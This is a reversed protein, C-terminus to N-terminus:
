KKLRNIYIYSKGTPKNGNFDIMYYYTGDPLQGGNWDNEYNDKEYVLSGWRNFISLKNPKLGMVGPIILVDNKGDGNPSIGQPLFSECVDADIRNDVGDHDCDILSGFDINNEVSDLIGDNDSDTDRFDYTLDKDTDLPNKPDPGAEVKDTIGDNDSDLDRFDANGDKDTDVPTSTPGKEINDSLTDSDSDLDRYDPLGDGDTDIPNATPGKEINDSIGDNDSDLDRYDPLGDGDTDVPTSTPGKETNDSIGDNDSDLDRYDPLGDGDTDIPTGTPGKEINDSIGDNDSDLDRYDPLGDGDTDIPTGNPGKEINDIIGDNDSDIDRYDPLGDKDTDIPKSPDAGAETKDLIGDNDSDTERFDYIGDGDTDLPKTPDVGAEIADTIGDNDSDLDRFDPTGDKDTDVPISPDKGAEIADPIGDNDSDLDRFDPTGDKDTDVPNLPDSGAEVADPIGDNDSDIDLFDPSGDKDTDVSWGNTSFEARDDWGDDNNDVRDTCTVCTTPGEIRDLIGDGDSDLDLFNPAGDGDKDSTGEIRDGLKDGDSDLDRYNPLNDGDMDGRLEIRDLIGDADSDLDLFDAAGDGDTDPVEDSAGGMATEVCDLLGNGNADITCDVRGDNNNDVQNRFKILGEFSDLIGDGDSDLDLFNPTGDKDFDAATERSDLIGDNDSDIDIYDFHGDGDSDVRKESIDLIGDNDSDQDLYDPTGDRDFDECNSGGNHCELGNSIGDGDCDADRFFDYAPTGVQPALGSGDQCYNLPASDTGNPNGDGDCDANRWATSTNALVQSSANYSCGNNPDTGDLLEQADSVGDGDSDNPVVQLVLPYTTSGVTNTATVTYSTPSMLATPTGTIAGTSTNFSLGSPLGPSISYTPSPFAAVSPLYGTNTIAVGLRPSLMGGYSLGSPIQNVVLNFISTGTGSSNTASVTFAQSAFSATPTGSIQGNTANFTLGAPLVIPSISWTTVSGSVSPNLTSIATGVLYGAPQIYSIVPAATLIITFTTSASPNIGNNATLMYTTAAQTATPTGSIQGTATNLSLGSPLSPSVSYTPAPTATVTPLASTFTANIPRSINGFSLGTPPGQVAINITQTTSGFVSSATVTYTASAVSTGVTPTGTIAGTTPNISLGGPLNPSVTYTLSGSGASISPNVPSMAVGATLVLPGPITLSTPPIGTAINLTTTTSGFSNSATLTYSSQSVAATPTGTIIGTSPNLSLGAPLGPSISYTVASTGGTISPSIPSIATGTPFNTSVLSYSYASPAYGAAIDLTTTGTGFGNVATVTFTTLAEIQTPTGSIVGTSTNFSLGAFLSPSISYSTPSNYVTPVINTIAQGVPLNQPTTYSLIPFATVSITFTVTTPNGIGNFASVTYSTASQMNTPTGTIAGTSTNFSLGSPLGPSISFNAAPSSVVTPVAGSGGIAVNVPFSLNGGYSINSPPGQVQITTSATSSGYANTSTITYTAVTSAIGAAPTGTIDGTIPDIILGSPLAPSISYTFSPTGASVTPSLTNIASGAQYVNGTAYSFVPAVGTSIQMFTSTSGYSNSASITYVANSVVSTTGSIVGTSTNFSLGTPLGPSIAYTTSGSGATISPSQNTIATGTRFSNNASAYLLNSPANGVAISVTTQTSGFVSSATITANSASQLATPTGYLVGTAPDIHVGAPLGTASYTVLGSGTTISPSVSNMGANLPLLLPGTYSLSSPPTGVTLTFNATAVKAPGNDTAASTATVTNVTAVSSISPTGSVVATSTNFSLGSPLSPSISLTNSYGGSYAPSIASAVQNRILNYPGSYSISPAAVVRFSITYTATGFTNSAQITANSAGQVTSPIGYIVGTTPDLILGSPLGTASFNTAGTGQTLSPSLNTIPDGQWYVYSNSAYTLATPPAGITLQVTGSTSGYASTATITFSTALLASTPTGSIVGTSTNFSLGPALSALSPSISYTVVGTGSTISPSIPTIASGSALTSNIYSLGSPATGPPLIEVTFTSSATGATSGTALITVSSASAAAGNGDYVLNGNSSLSVGTLLSGASISYTISTGVGGIAPIVTRGIGQIFTQNGGYSLNAPGTVAFQLQATSSGFGNVATVTYTTLNRAATPTGSIVGTSTNLSLGAPLAPSISFTAGSPSYTSYTNSPDAINITLASGTAFGTYLPNSSTGGWPNQLGTNLVYHYTFDVPAGVTLNVLTSRSGVNNYATVTYDTAPATATATGSIAGTQINLSLGAPLSPNIRYAVREEYKRIAASHDIFYLAGNDDAAITSNGYGIGGIAIDNQQGTARPNSGDYATGTALLMPSMSGASISGIGENPYSDSVYYTSGNSSAAAKVNSALTVNSQQTFSSTQTNFTSTVFEKTNDSFFLFEGTPKVAVDVIRGGLGLDAPPFLGQITGLFGHTITHPEPQFTSASYVWLGMDESPAFIRGQHVLLRYISGFGSTPLSIVPNAGPNLTNIDVQYISSTSGNDYCSIFLTNNSYAIKRPNDGNSFSLVSSTSLINAPNANDLKAIKTAWNSDQYLVYINGTSADRSFDLVQNETFLTNLNIASPSLVAGGTNTPTLTSIAVGRTYIQPGVYAPRPKDLIDIYLDVYTSGYANTATVRYAQLASLSTAQGTIRGTAPNLSLGAPLAPSVSYTEVPLGGVALTPVNLTNANTNSGVEIHWPAYQYSLGSPPRVVTLTVNTTFIGARNTATVLYTQTNNSVTLGAGTPTGSITGNTYDFSLGAFLTPTITISESPTYSYGLGSDFSPSILVDGNEPSIALTNFTQTYTPVTEIITANRTIRYIHGVGGGTANVYMDGQKDTVLFPTPSANLTVFNSVEFTSLNVKRIVATNAGQLDLVYLNEDVGLTAAVPNTFSAASGIGNATGASGSGAITTVQNSIVNLFRITRNGSDPIYIRSGIADMAPQGMGNFKALHGPGDQNGSVGAGWQKVVRSTNSAPFKTIKNSANSVNYFFYQPDMIMYDPAGGDYAKLRAVGGTNEYLANGQTLYWRTPASGFSIFMKSGAYGPVGTNSWGGIGANISGGGLSPILPSIAQGQLYPSGPQVYNIVPKAQIQIEVTGTATGFANTVDVSYVTNASITTPTGTIEGTVPNLSLGAPLAPSGAHLTYSTAAPYSMPLPMLYAPENQVLLAQARSYGMNYPPGQVFITVTASVSGGTNTGTIVYDTQVTGETPTGTIIGTSTNLTLGAPLAPYVSYSAIIGGQNTPVLASIATGVTLVNSNSSYSLNSAPIDLVQIPIVLSSSGTAVTSTVTYNRLPTYITPTGSIRGTYTDMSLGAPFMPTVTFAKTTRISKVKNNGYDAVHVLTGDGYAYVAVPENFQATGDQGQTNGATGSGAMTSLIGSAPNYVKVKHNMRDAIYVDGAGDISIGHPSNLRSTGVTGDVDGSSGNGAMVTAAGQSTIKLLRHADTVWLNGSLDVALGVPANLTVGSVAFNSAIGSVLDLIRISNNGKDAVYIKNAQGPVPVISMPQNFLAYDGAAASGNNSGATIATPDGGVVGIGEVFIRHRTPDSYVMKAAGSVSMRVLGFVSGLSSSPSTGGSASQLTWDIGYVRGNNSGFYFNGYDGPFITTPSPVNITYNTSTTYNRIIWFDQVDSKIYVRKTLDGPNNGLAPSSPTEASIASNVTYSRQSTGNPYTLVPNQGSASFLIFGCSIIFFFRRFFTAIAYKM